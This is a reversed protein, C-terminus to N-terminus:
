IKKTQAMKMQMWLTVGIMLERLRLGPSDKPISSRWWIVGMRIRKMGRMWVIWDEKVGMTRLKGWRTLKAAM